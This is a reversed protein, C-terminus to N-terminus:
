PRCNEMSSKENNDEKMDREVIQRIIEAMSIAQEYAKKKLYQHEEETFYIQTRRM